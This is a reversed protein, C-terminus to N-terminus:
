VFSFVSVSDFWKFLISTTFDNDVLDMKHTNELVGYASIFTIHVM